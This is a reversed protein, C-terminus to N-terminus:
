ELIVNFNHSDKTLHSKTSQDNITNHINFTSM